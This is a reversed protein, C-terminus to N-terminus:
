KRLDWKKLERMESIIFNTLTSDSKVLERYSLYNKKAAEISEKSKAVEKITLRYLPIQALWEYHKFNAEKLSNELVSKSEIATAKESWKEKIFRILERLKDWKEKEGQALRKFRAKLHKKRYSFFDRIIDSDSCKRLGGNYTIVNQEIVEQNTKSFIAKIKKPTMKAERKFIIEIRFDDKSHDLYDRVENPEKVLNELYMIVKERNWNQPAQVLFLSGKSYEFAFGTSFVRQQNENKFYLYSDKKLGKYWPSLDVETEPNELFSISADVLDSLNRGALNTRFGTAIGLVPNLFVLPIKPVFFIPEKATEDYNDVYDLDPISEFLGVDKAFDSITVETYRPSAIAKPDLADGFTGEGSVLPYNNSFIFDQVMQAIAEEISSNGHPHYAMVMGAVKVTKTFRDRASSNWMTWLIRRQVPKLGDMVNPIARSDCVYRSYKKQDQNVQETFDVTKVVEEWM